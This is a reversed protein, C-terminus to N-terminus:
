PKPNTSKDSFNIARAGLTIQGALCALVHKKCYWNPDNGLGLVAALGCERGREDVFECIYVGV